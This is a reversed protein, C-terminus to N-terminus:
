NSAADAKEAKPLDAERYAKELRSRLREIERTMGSSLRRAVVARKVSALWGGLADARSRNMYVMWSGRGDSPESDGILVTLGLSGEFYHSAYLQKSAILLWDRGNHMKREIAVHTISVVPKLGFREKSWYFLNEAGSPPREPYSLLYDRLEPAVDRIWSFADLIGQFEERLIVPPDKDNYRMLAPNGAAMYESVYGTLLNRLLSQALAQHDPRTWDVRGRLSQMADSSLKMGCDGAHCKRLANLEAPEWTLNKLDSADPPRGFQGIQTIQPSSKFAAIDRYQGLFFEPPVNLRVVGAVGVERGSKSALTKVLVKGALLKTRDSKALPLFEEMPLADVTGQARASLVESIALALALLTRPGNVFM